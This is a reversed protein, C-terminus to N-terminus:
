QGATRRVAAFHLPASEIDNPVNPQAGHKVLLEVTAKQGHYSAQHIPRCMYTVVHTGGGRRRFGCTAQSTLPTYTNGNEDRTNLNAGRALLLEIVKNFGRQTYIFLTLYRRCWTSIACNLLHPSGQCCPCSPDQTQCGRFGGPFSSL